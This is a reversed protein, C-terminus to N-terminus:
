HLLHHFVSLYWFLYVIVLQLVHEWATFFTSVCLIIPVPSSSRSKTSHISASDRLHFKLGPSHSPALDTLLFLIIARSQPSIVFIEPPSCRPTDSYWFPWLHVTLLPVSWDLVLTVAEKVWGCWWEAQTDGGLLAAPFQEWAFSQVNQSEDQKGEWLDGTRHPSNNSTKFYLRM